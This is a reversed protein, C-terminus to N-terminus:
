ANLLRDLKLAEKINGKMKMRGTAMGAMPNLQGFVLKVFDTSMITVEFTTTLGHSAADGALWGRGGPNRLDLTFREGTDKFYFSFVSNIEASVDGGLRRELQEVATQVSTEM